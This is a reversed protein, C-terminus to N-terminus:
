SPTKPTLRLVSWGEDISVSVRIGVGERMGAAVYDATEFRGRNRGLVAIEVLWSEPSDLLVEVDASTCTGRKTASLWSGDDSGSLDILSVAILHEDRFVRVFLSSGDPEPRTEGAWSVKVSANEDSLEYWSTDTAARFLDRCRLAFRHWRLAEEREDVKLTEHNVYYPHCLVGDNDGWILVNAGLVTSVAESLVCTRLANTREGGWVPPYLALTSGDCENSGSRALLGELHRWRDNPPWVEVYRFSPPAPAWFGRPVGNVQNFSLVDNPRARRIAGVFSAYGAPVDVGQGKANLADRPYGYTDLHFGNFGLVDAAGSYNKIWYSQWELSGPDMIQLLDGLSEPAGDNRFLRWQPHASALENGAAIVPAYALAVAGLEQIGDTLSELSRRSVPRGLPDEYDDSEALATSYSDMWDYVQVVTCRLDRLWALVDDRSADDFSTVFGPVPDEGRQGRVSFFEEALVDGSSSLAQLVHTGDPLGSVTASDSGVTAIYVAGVASVVVVDQTDGPLDAVVIPEDRLYASRLDGLVG